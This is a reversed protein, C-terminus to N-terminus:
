WGVGNEIPEICVWSLFAYSSILINEGGERWKDLLGRGIRQYCPPDLELSFTSLKRHYVREGSFLKITWLEASLKEQGCIM